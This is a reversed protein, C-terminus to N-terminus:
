GEALTQGPWHDSVHRFDHGPQTDLYGSGSVRSIALLLSLWAWCGRGPSMIITILAAWLMRTVRLMLVTKNLGDHLALVLRFHNSKKSSSQCLCILRAGTQMLEQSQIPWHLPWLLLLDEQCVLSWYWYMLGVCDAMLCNCLKWHLLPFHAWLYSNEIKM